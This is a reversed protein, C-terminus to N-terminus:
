VIMCDCAHVHLSSVVVYRSVKYNRLRRRWMYIRTLIPTDASQVYWAREPGKEKGFPMPVLSVKHIGNECALSM